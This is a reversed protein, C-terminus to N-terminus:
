SNIIRKSMMFFGAGGRVVGGQLKRSPTSGQAEGSVSPSPTEDLTM